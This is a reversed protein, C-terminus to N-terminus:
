LPLEQEGIVSWLLRCSCCWINVALVGDCNAWERNGGTICSWKPIWTARSCKHSDWQDQHHISISPSALLLKGCQLFFRGLPRFCCTYASGSIQHWKMRRLASLISINQKKNQCPLYCSTLHHREQLNNIKVNFMLVIAKPSFLFIEFSKMDTNLTWKILTTNAHAGISFICFVGTSVYSVCANQKLGVEGSKNFVKNILHTIHTRLFHAPTWQSGLLWSRGGVAVCVGLGTLHSPYLPAQGLPTFDLYINM